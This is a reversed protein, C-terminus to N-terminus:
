YYKTHCQIYSAWTYVDMTVNKNRQIDAYLRHALSINKKKSCLHLIQNYIMINPTVNEVIMEELAKFAEDLYGKRCM